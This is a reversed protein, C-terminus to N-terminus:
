PAANWKRIDELRQNCEDVDKGRAEALEIAGQYTKAGLATKPCKLLLSDPVRIKQLQTVTIPDTTSCAGLFPLLFIGILAVRIRRRSREKSLM